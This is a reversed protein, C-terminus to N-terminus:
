SSAQYRAVDSYSATAFYITGYDLLLATRQLSVRADFRIAGDDEDDNALGAADVKAAITVPSGAREGGTTLDLAHLRYTISPESCTYTTCYDSSSPDTHVCTQGPVTRSDDEDLAVVYITGTAPDIVPTSTIGSENMNPAQSKCAKEPAKITGFWPNPVPVSEGLRTKWLPTTSGDDADFAYVSDHETAVFVVNHKEGDSMRVGGLYLPQAYQDGDVPITFLKGFRTPNVNGVNLFTERTNTASGGNANMTVQITPHVDPEVISSYTPADDGGDAPVTPPDRACALVDLLSMYFFLGGLRPRLSPPASPIGAGGPAIPRSDTSGARPLWLPSPRPEVDAGLAAAGVDDGSDNARTTEAPVLGNSAM